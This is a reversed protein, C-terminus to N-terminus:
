TKNNFTVLPVVLCWFHAFVAYYAGKKGSPLFFGLGFGEASALLHGVYLAMGELLLLLLFDFSYNPWGLQNEMTMMMMEMMMMQMMMQMMMKTTTVTMTMKMKMTLTM